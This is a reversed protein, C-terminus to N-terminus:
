GGTELWTPGDNEGTERARERLFRATADTMGWTSGAWGIAIATSYSCPRDGTATHAPKEPQDRAVFDASRPRLGNTSTFSVRRAVMLTPAVLM